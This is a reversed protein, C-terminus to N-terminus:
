WLAHAVSGEESLAAAESASASAEKSALSLPDGRGGVSPNGTRAESAPAAAPSVELKLGSVFDDVSAAGGECTGVARAVEEMSWSPYRATQDSKRKKITCNEDPKNRDPNNIYKM